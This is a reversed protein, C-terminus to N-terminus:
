RDEAPGERKMRAQAMAAAETVDLGLVTAIAEVHAVTM